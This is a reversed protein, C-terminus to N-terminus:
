GPSDIIKFINNHTISLNNVNFEVFSKTPVGIKIDSENIQQDNDDTVNFSNHISNLKNTKFTKANKEAKKLFNKIFLTKGSGSEGVILINFILQNFSNFKLKNSKLIAIENTNQM